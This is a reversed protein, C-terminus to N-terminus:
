LKIQKNQYEDDALAKPEVGWLRKYSKMVDDEVNPVM